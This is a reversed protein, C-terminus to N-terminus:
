ELRFCVLGLRLHFLKGQGLYPGGQRTYEGSWNKSVDKSGIIGQVINMPPTEQSGFEVFCLFARNLYKYLAVLM